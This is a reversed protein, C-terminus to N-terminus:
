KGEFLLCPSYGGTGRESLTGAPADLPQTEQIGPYLSSGAASVCFVALLAATMIGQKKKM